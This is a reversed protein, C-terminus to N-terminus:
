FAPVITSDGLCLLKDVNWDAPSKRRPEWYSRWADRTMEVARAATMATPAGDVLYENCLLSWLMEDVLPLGPYEEDTDDM